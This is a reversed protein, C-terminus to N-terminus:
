PKYIRLRIASSADFYLRYAYYGLDVIGPYVLIPLPECPKIYQDSVLHLPDPTRVWGSLVEEHVM